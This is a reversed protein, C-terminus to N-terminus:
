SVYSAFLNYVNNGLRRKMSAHSDWGRARVVMDYLGINEVLKKIDQASHQGDGDMLVVVDGKAARM